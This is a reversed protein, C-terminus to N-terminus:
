RWSSRPSPPLLRPVAATFHLQRQYEGKTKTMAFAQQERVHWPHPHGNGLFNFRPVPLAALNRTSDKRTQSVFTGDCINNLLGANGGPGDTDLGMCESFIEEEQFLGLICGAVVM